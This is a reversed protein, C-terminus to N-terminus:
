NRLTQFVTALGTELPLQKPLVGGPSKLDVLSTPMTQITRKVNEGTGRSEAQILTNFFKPIEPGLAKGISSAYGKMSGDPREVLSVHSIVVVHAKFDDSTLLDLIIKVSDQAAGYWQRPDKSTPNMGQAWFFAARAMATLSDLVFVTQDGWEAPITEDDWKNLAKNANVYAKPQGSVIPGRVPDAKFKDRFTQYDIKDLLKPDKQKAHALLSDMGNDMDLIRLNYGAELLSVLSGTKGTGSDGIYILKVFHREPHSSAKAM